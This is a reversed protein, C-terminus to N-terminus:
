SFLLSGTQFFVASVCWAAACQSLAMRAAGRFGNYEKGYASLAAACPSYLMVFLLFSLGSLSSFTEALAMGPLLVALTGAINEKAPLGALLAVAAQWFPFGCPSFVPAIGKGILALLSEEPDEVPQLGPSISELLWVLACAWLLVSVARSFFDSARLRVRNWVTRFTPRTYPPLEMVFPSFGSQGYGTKKMLLAAAIACLVGFLCLFGATLAEYGPFLVSATLLYVPTKASCSFFPLLRLTRRREREQELIHTSLVAPVTCGFGSLLPVVSKGSLGLRSLPADLLFAARAMYGTDELLALCFFLLLIGPLFSLAAGVGSLMGDLLLGQLWPSVGLASLGRRAASFLSPILGSTELCGALPGFSLFFVMCLILLLIPYGWYKSLLIGDLRESFRTPSNKAPPLELSCERTLKEAWDYRAAAELAYDGGTPLAPGRGSASHAALSCCASLIEQKVNHAAASAAIVPLGLRRSLLSSSCRLGEKEAMDTRNFVVLIPLRLEMLQSLLYLGRQPALADVVAIIGQAEGSRLFQSATKEEPSWPSLACIGPLDTFQLQFGGFVAEGTKKEVTVGPWNGVQLSSGTLRNFLTTKGCNPPGALAFHLKKKM